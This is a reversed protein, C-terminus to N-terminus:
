SGAALSLVVKALKNDEHAVNFLMKRVEIRAFKNARQEAEIVLIRVLEVNRLLIHLSACSREAFHFRLSEIRECELKSM